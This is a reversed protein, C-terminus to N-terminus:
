LNLDNQHLHTFTKNDNTKQIEIQKNRISHLIGAARQVYAETENLNLTQKNDTRPKM